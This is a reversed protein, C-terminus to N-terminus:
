APPSGTTPQGHARWAAFGGDLDGAQTLGLERLSDAALSSTYGEQCVIIAEVDYRAVEPLRADSCPDFRWELV